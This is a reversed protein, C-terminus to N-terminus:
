DLSEWCAPVFAMRLLQICYADAGRFVQKRVARSTGDLFEAYLTDNFKLTRTSGLLGTSPQHVRINKLSTNTDDPLSLLQPAVIMRTQGSPPVLFAAPIALGIEPSLVCETQHLAACRVARDFSQQPTSSKRSIVFHTCLTSEYVVSFNFYRCEPPADSALDESPWYALLADDDNVRRVEPPVVEPGWLGVSTLVTTIALGGGALRTASM